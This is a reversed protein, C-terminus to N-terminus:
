AADNGRVRERWFAFLGASIVILAGLATWGDVFEGFWVIGILSAFVTQLYAFPQLTSAEAADFAVILLFHGTMGSVCLVAMIAADFPTMPAWFFPGILMMTVAGALGTYYFSTMPDDTRAVRRTAIGYIAFMVVALVAVWLSSTFAVAGPRIIFMMGILGVGVATWRRWGIKEGLLPGSLAVVLLPTFAFIAHTTSLGILHFAAVAVCIELALLVGRFIQLKPQGSRLGNRFGRRWLLLLVVLGFALYRWMTILITSYSGALYKSLGDQVSFVLMAAMMFAIGRLANPVAGATM